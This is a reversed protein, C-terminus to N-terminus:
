FVRSKRKELVRCLAVSTQERQRSLISPELGLRKLFNLNVICSRPSQIREFVRSEKKEGFVGFLSTFTQQSQRSLLEVAGICPKRGVEPGVGLV